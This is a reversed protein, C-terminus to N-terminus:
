GFLTSSAQKQRDYFSSAESSDIYLGASKPTSDEQEIYTLKTPDYKKAREILEQVRDQQNAPNETSM